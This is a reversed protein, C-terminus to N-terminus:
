LILDSTRVVIFIGIINNKFTIIQYIFILTESSGLAEMELTSTYNLMSQDLGSVKSAQSMSIWPIETSMEYLVKGYQVM